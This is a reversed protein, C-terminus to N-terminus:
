RDNLQFNAFDRLRDLESDSLVTRIQMIGM